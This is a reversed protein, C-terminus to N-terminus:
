TKLNDLLQEMRSAEVETKDIKFEIRPLPRMVLKKHLLRQIERKKKNLEKFVRRTEKEPLVSVWVRAERLDPTAEGRTITILCDRPLELERLFIQSLESKLLSNVQSIRKSM